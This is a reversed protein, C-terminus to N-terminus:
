GAANGSKSTITLPATRGAAKSTELLGKLEKVIEPHDFYLNKSIPSCV